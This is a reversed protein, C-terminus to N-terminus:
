KLADMLLIRAFATEARELKKNSYVLHKPMPEYGVENPLPNDYYGISTIYIQYQKKRFRFLTMYKDAFNNKNKLKVMKIFKYLTKPRTHNRNTDPSKM